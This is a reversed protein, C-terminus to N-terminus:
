YDCNLLEIYSVLFPTLCLWKMEMEALLHLGVHPLPSTYLQTM